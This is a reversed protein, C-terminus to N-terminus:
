LGTITATTKSNSWLYLYNPTGGSALAVIQGNNYLPENNPSTPTLTITIPTPASLAFTM